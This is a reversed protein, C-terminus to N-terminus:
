WARELILGFQPFPTGEDEIEEGTIPNFHDQDWLYDFGEVEKEEIQPVQAEPGGYCDMLFMGEDALSAHVQKFYGGLEARTKFGWWSFNTAALM